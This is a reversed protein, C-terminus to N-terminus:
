DEDGGDKTIYSVYPRVYWTDGPRVNGKTWTYSVPGGTGTARASNKVYDANDATLETGPTYKASGGSAAVLGAGTISAGDPVTLFAVFTLKGTGTNYAATKIIATGVADVADATYVATLTCDNSTRFVATRNYSLIEDDLKWYAFSKGSVELAKVSIWNNETYKRATPTEAEGNYITVTFASPAAKFKATVIVSNGALEANIEEATKDWGDFVYGYYPTPDAPFDAGSVSRADELIKQVKNNAMFTVKGTKIQYRAELATDTMVIFSYAATDSLRRGDTQYWGTFEYGENAAGATVTVNTGYPVPNEASVTPAAGGETAVATVTYTPIAEFTYTFTTDATIAADAPDTNWAGGMYGSSAIMGAPVSAPKHGSAVTETKDETGGDAWTGNIVKYTVTYLDEYTATVTVTHAPMRFDATATTASGSTFTLGDAGTWEKFRQGKPAANATITVSWNVQYNASGAGGTNGNIVTVTYVPNPIFTPEPLTITTNQGSTVTLTWTGDANKVATVNDPLDTITEIERNPAPTLTITATSQVGATQGLWLRDYASTLGTSSVTVTEIQNRFNVQFYETGTSTSSGVTGGYNYVEGSNTAM